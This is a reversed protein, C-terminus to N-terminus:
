GRVKVMAARLVRGKWVYGARLVEAVEQEGGDGPEHAVADHLTPDFPRGAPDIRELGEHELVEVLATWVQKVEEGAGHAVALDAVDLVPLLKDVLVENARAASDAQQKQMRKKYNEFDAQLRQLAGLYDDRERRLRGMEDEGELEEGPGTESGQGAGSGQGAESSEPGAAGGAPVETGAGAEAEAVHEGEARDFAGSDVPDGLTDAAPAAEEGGAGRGGPAGAQEGGAPARAEPTPGEATVPEVPDRPTEEGPSV